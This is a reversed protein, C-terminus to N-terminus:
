GGKRGGPMVIDNRMWRRAAGAAEGWGRAGRGRRVREGEGGVEERGEEDAADLGFVVGERERRAVVDPRNRLSPVPKADDLWKRCSIVLPAAETVTATVSSHAHSLGRCGPPLTEARTFPAYL